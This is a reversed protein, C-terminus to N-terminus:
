EKYEICKKLEGEPVVVAVGAWWRDGVDSGLRPECLWLIHLLLASAYGVQKPLCPQYDELGEPSLCESPGDVIDHCAHYLMGPWITSYIYEEMLWHLRLVARSQESSDADCRVANFPLALDWDELGEHWPLCALMLLRIRVATRDGCLDVLVCSGLFREYVGHHISAEISKFPRRM